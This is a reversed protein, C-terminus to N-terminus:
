LADINVLAERYVEFAEEAEKFRLSYIPDHVINLSVQHYKKVDELNELVDTNINDLKSTLDEGKYDMVKLVDNLLTDAEVIALKMETETGRKFYSEIEQWKKKTKSLGYHKYNLFEKVDHLFFKDIWSTEFLSYVIFIIIALDILLFFVKFSILWVSQQPELLFQVINQPSINLNFNM